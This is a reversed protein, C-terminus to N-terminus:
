KAQPAAHPAPAASRSMATLAALAEAQARGPPWSALQGLSHSRRLHRVLQLGLWYGTRNPLGPQQQRPSASFWRVFPESPGPDLALKEADVQFRGAIEELRGDPIEGLDEQLLLQRDTRGPALLGSVYTALGEAFLPLLVSAGPMVGDNRIGARTAHYLHFLEHPLLVATDAGELVLSDVAFVLVPTGDGLLGSKGDLNPALVVQFAPRLPADPFLTRFGGAHELVAAELAQIAAPIRDGIRALEGFREKLLRAKRTKWDARTRTEWVVSAYLDQRPQEILRDWLALQEEFPRGKAAAWFATFASAMPPAASPETAGAPDAADIAGALGLLVVACLLRRTRSSM